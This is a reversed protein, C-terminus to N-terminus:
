SRLCAAASRFLAAVTAVLPHACLASKSVGAESLAGHLRVLDLALLPVAAVALEPSDCAHADRGAGTDDSLATVAVATGVHPTGAGFATAWVDRGLSEAALMREYLGRLDALAPVPLDAREILTLLLLRRYRAVWFRAIGASLMESLRLEGVGVVLLSTGLEDPVQIEVSVRKGYADPECRIIATPRWVAAAGDWWDVPVDRFRGDDLSSALAHRFRAISGTESGPSSEAIRIPLAAVAM